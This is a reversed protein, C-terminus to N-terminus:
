AEWPATTIARRWRSGVRVRWGSPRRWTGALGEYVLAGQIGKRMPNCMRDWAIPPGAHLVTERTMGPIVELAPRCGIWVPQSRALIEVVRRNAQDITNKVDSM